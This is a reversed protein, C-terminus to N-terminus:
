NANLPIRQRYIDDILKVYKPLIVDLSYQRQIKQRANIGLNRALNRDDLLTAIKNAIDEPSFFDAVLCNRTNEAVELVPATNSVVMSCEMAMAEFFSWSLVFPYTLYVHASSAKLASLYRSYSVKGLFHFRREDITIESLIKEKHTRGDALKAGYSVIDDAGIIIFHANPCAQSLIEFAKMARDFGRYKELSRASYTIIEASDPINLESIIDNKVINPNVVQTDIGEHIVSLKHHFADPHLNAQWQTPSILWDAAEMNILNTSNRIRTKAKQNNSAPPGDFGVDAGEYRYFFEMYAIYKSKPYVEKVLMGDGWGPHAYIIDPVFGSEKLRMLAAWMSQAKRTATEFERLYSHTSPNVPYKVPRVILKRLNNIRIANPTRCAFIVENEKFSAYYKALHKFQGPFNPHIFLIKM